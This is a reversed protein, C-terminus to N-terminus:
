LAFRATLTAIDEDTLSVTEGEADVRTVLFDGVITDGRVVRNPLLGQLKGEENCYLCLGHGLSVGELYGGVIAQMYELQQLKTMTAVYPQRGVPVVMFRTEHM